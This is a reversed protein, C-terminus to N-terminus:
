KKGKLVPLPINEEELGLNMQVNDHAAWSIEKATLDSRQGSSGIKLDKRNGIPILNPNLQSPLDGKMGYLLIGRM